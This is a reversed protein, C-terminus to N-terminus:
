ASASPAWEQKRTGIRIRNGDPDTLRVERARKEDSVEVGFEAAFPEVDEVDFYLLTDPTADGAHESLHIRLEGRQLGVYAPFEQSYRDEFQVAFGLRSYWHAARGTDAVKLIPILQDAM